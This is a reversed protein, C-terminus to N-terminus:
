WIHEAIQYEDIFENTDTAMLIHMVIKDLTFISINTAHKWNLRSFLNMFNLLYQRDIIRIREWISENILKFFKNRKSAEWFTVAELCEPSVLSLLKNLGHNTTYEKSDYNSRCDTYASFLLTVSPFIINFDLTDRMVVNSSREVVVLSQKILHKSLQLLWKKMLISTLHIIFLRMFMKWGDQQFDVTYIFQVRCCCHTSKGRFKPTRTMGSYVDYSTCDGQFQNWKHKLPNDVRWASYVEVAKSALTREREIERYLYDATFCFDILLITFFYVFYNKRTNRLRVTAFQVGKGKPANMISLERCCYLCLSLYLPQDDLVENEGQLFTYTFNYFLQENM